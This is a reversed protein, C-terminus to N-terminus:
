PQFSWSFKQTQKTPDSRNNEDGASRESWTVTMTCMGGYPPRMALQASSPNYGAGTNDCSITAKPSPLFTTLQLSWLQQDRAALDTPNCAAGVGCGLTGVAVPYTTNYSGAWVGAPNASMRNAMNNALFSVQTRLYAAQNSRAAMVHLGALGVLGISFIVVAVLVEILSVGHQSHSKAIARASSRKFANIAAPERVPLRAPYPQPERLARSRRSSDLSRM